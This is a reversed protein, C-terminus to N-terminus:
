GQCGNMAKRIRTRHVVRFMQLEGSILPYCPFTRVVAPGYGAKDIIIPYCTVTRATAIEADLHFREDGTGAITVVILIPLISGRFGIRGPDPLLKITLVSTKAFRASM